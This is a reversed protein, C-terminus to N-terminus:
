NQMQILLSCLTLGTFPKITLKLEKYCMLLWFVLEDLLFHTLNKPSAQFSTPPPTSDNSLTLKISM